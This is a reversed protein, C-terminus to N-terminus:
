RGLLQGLRRAVKLAFGTARQVDPDGMAKLAGFMGVSEAGERRVEVVARATLALVDFTKPDLAGERVMVDAGDLALRAQDVHDLVREVLDLMEPKALRGMLRAARQTTASADIGAAKMEAQAIDAQDLAFGVDARRAAVRKILAITEPRAADIALPVLEEATHVPDIGNEVAQDWAYQATTGAAEAIEPIRDAITAYGTHMADVKADLADLRELIKALIESDTAM